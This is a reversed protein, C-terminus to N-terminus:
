CRKQCALFFRHRMTELFGDREIMEHARRMNAEYKELSFDEIQWQIVSLLYYVAGIDYFQMPVLAEKQDLVDFGAETLQRAAYAMDWYAYKFPAGDAILENLRVNNKGGVQQTLFVGNPRLIRKLEAVDYSEHRSVVLEFTEDDFPLNDDSTIKVVEIGLPNLRERAIPVNPAYAETACTYSPFPALSALFEGGGTGLDLM